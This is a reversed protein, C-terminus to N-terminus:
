ASKKKRLYRYTLSAAYGAYALLDTAEGVLLKEMWVKEEILEEPFKSPFILGAKRLNSFAQLLLTRGKQVGHKVLINNVKTYTFLQRNSQFVQAKMKM